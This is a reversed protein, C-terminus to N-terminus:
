SRLKTAIPDMLCRDSKSRDDREIKRWWSIVGSFMRLKPDLEVVNQDVLFRSGFGQFFQAIFARLNLSVYGFDIM